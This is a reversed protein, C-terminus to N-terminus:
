TNGGHQGRALLREVARLYTASEGRWNYRATFRRAQVARAQAAAPDHYVTLLKAALDAANGPEFLLVMSEDFYDATTATRSAIAPVGLSVYELLKTPLGCDTFVDQRMPAVGVDAARIAAPLEEIPLQGHFRVLDTLGLEAVLQEVAPRYDGAGYLELAVGPIEPRVQAIAQVLLDVGYRQMIGGHHIVVFRGDAMRVSDVQRVAGTPAPGFIREDPCNMVQVLKGAPIGRGTMIRRHRDHLVCVADASACAARELRTLLRVIVSGRALAFRSMFLEPMLERLDLLVPVRALKLPLTAFILADPPNHVQVLAYPARRHRRRLERGALFFFRAYEKLYAIAGAGQHRTEPLRVVNVGNLTESAAQGPLQLCLVDVAHGCGALAEAM